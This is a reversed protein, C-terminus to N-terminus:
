RNANNLLRVAKLLFLCFAKSKICSKPCKFERHKKKESKMRLFSKKPVAVDYGTRLLSKPPMCAHPWNVYYMLNGDTHQQVKPNTSTLNSTASSAMTGTATAEGLFWFEPSQAIKKHLWHDLPWWPGFVKFSENIHFTQNLDSSALHIHSDVKYVCKMKSVSRQIPKQLVLSVSGIYMYWAYFGAFGLLDNQFVGARWPLRNSRETALLATRLTRESTEAGQIDVTVVRHICPLYNCTCYQLYIYIGGNYM